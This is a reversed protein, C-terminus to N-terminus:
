ALAEGGGKLAVSFLLDTHREGLAQDVFSGPRRELTSCDLAQLVAASLDVPHVGSLVGGRRGVPTRVAQVIVADPM